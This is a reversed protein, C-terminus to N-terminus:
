YLSLPHQRTKLPLDVRCGTRQSEYVAMIMELAARADTVSSLPQTDTEIAHLLDKCTAVNSPHHGPDTMTEPKGLGDSAIEIWRAKSRGPAWASDEIFHADPLSGHTLTVMGKTGYINLGFRSTAHDKARHSGFYGTTPSDFGYMASLEDGALYDIGDGNETRIDKKAIPKGGALVTAMCWKADGRLFRMMDMVHYGLVLLDEGGGRHDEKGRGRMEVIDGLKGDAIMEKVRHLRPAYRTQASVAMKLHKEEFARVIADAEALTRCLPKEMYVHRGHEAAAMAMAYHCDVWRPAITVIDVEETDLMENYDAYGRKAGLNAVAEARGKDDEDAVAVIQANPVDKWAEALGHGYDGKGTRGIVAIRYTTPM